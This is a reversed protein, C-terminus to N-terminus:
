ATYTRGIIKKKKETVLIPVTRPVRIVWVEGLAELVRDQHPQWAKVEPYTGGDVEDVEAAVIMAVYTHTVDVFSSSHTM